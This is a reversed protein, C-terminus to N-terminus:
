AAPNGRVAYVGAIVVQWLAFLVFRSVLMALPWRWTVRGAHVHERLRSISNPLVVSSSSM